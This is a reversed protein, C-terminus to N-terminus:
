LILSMLYKIVLDLLAILVGIGVAGIIVAITQRFFTKQDLWSIKQFEARLTKFIEGLSKRTKTNQQTNQQKTQEM